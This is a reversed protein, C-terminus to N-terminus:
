IEGGVKLVKEKGSIQDSPALQLVDIMVSDTRASKIRHNIDSNQNNSQNSSQTEPGNNMFTYNIAEFNTSM